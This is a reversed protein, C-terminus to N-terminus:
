GRRPSPRGTTMKKEDLVARGGGGGRRGGGGAATWGADPPRQRARRSVGRKRPQGAVQETHRHEVTIDRGRVVALDGARAPLDAAAQPGIWVGRAGKRAAAEVTAPGARGGVVLLIDISGPVDALRRWSALGGVEARDARVPFVEFGADRLYRVVADGHEGRRRGAGLVAITRAARLLREAEVEDRTLRRV